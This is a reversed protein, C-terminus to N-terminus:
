TIIEQYGSKGLRVTARTGSIPGHSGQSVPFDSRSAGWVSYGLGPAHVDDPLV